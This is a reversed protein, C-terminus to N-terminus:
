RNKSVIGTCFFGFLLVKGRKAVFFVVDGMLRMFRFDGCFLGTRGLIVFMGSSLSIGASPRYAPLSFANKRLSVNM